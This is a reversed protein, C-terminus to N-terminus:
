QQLFPAHLPHPAVALYHFHQSFLVKLDVGEVEVCEDDLVFLTLRNFVDLALYIPGGRLLRLATLHNNALINLSSETLYTETFYAKVRNYIVALDFLLFTSDSLCSAAYRSCCCCCALPMAALEWILWLKL